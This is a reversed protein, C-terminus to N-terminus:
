AVLSEAYELASGIISHEWTYKTNLLVRNRAILEALLKKDSIGGKMKHKWILHFGTSIIWTIPLDLIKNTNCQLYVIDFMLAPNHLYKIIKLM